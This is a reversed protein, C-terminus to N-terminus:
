ELLSGKLINSVIMEPPIERATKLAEAGGSADRIKHGAAELTKRLAMRSEASDGAILIKL